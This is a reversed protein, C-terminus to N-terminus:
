RRRIKVIKGMKPYPHCKPCRDGRFITGCVECQNVPMHSIKELYMNYSNHRVEGVGM